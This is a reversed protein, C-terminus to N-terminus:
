PSEVPVVRLRLLLKLLLETVDSGAERLSALAAEPDSVDAMDIDTAICDFLDALEYLSNAKEIEKAYITCTASNM